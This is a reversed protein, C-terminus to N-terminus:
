ITKQKKCPGAETEDEPQIDGARTLVSESILSWIPIEPHQAHIRDKAGLAKLEIMCACEVVVGEFKKVLEIGALLTMGLATLDDVLLVKDGPKVSDRQISITDGGTPTNEEYEKFFETGDVANPMKGKKRLMFFPKRLALAIPPGLLFGRADFGGISDFDRDKYRAVFVDIALQFLNPDAMMGGIDYFRDIGKFPYYPISAAIKRAIVGDPEYQSLSVADTVKNSEDQSSSNPNEVSADAM